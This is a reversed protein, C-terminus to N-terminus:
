MLMMLLTGYNVIIEYSNGLHFYALGDNPNQALHNQIHPIVSKQDCSNFIRIGPSAASIRPM